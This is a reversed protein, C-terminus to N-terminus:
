TNQQNRAWYTCKEKRQTSSMKTGKISTAQEESAVAKTLGISKPQTSM